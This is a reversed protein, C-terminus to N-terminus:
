INFINGNSTIGKDFRGDYVVSGNSYITEHDSFKIQGANNIQEMNHIHGFLFLKPKIVRIRKALATCGCFELNNNRDFSLDLAGKAPGHTVVIDTDEPITAWLKHLKDRKKNYAWGQGFSPTYPSGWIKLIRKTILVNEPKDIWVSPNTIDIEISENELYIIGNDIFDQKTVYGHEISTDHNGAIMIKYKIPLNGFWEIFDKVQPENLYLERPNSCDGSFIVIDIGEPITLQSHFTHTDSIHWIRM